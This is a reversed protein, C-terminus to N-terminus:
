VKTTPSTVLLNVIEKIKVADPPAPLLLLEDAPGHRATGFGRFRFDDGKFDDVGELFFGPVKDVTTLLFLPTCTNNSSSSLSSSKTSVELSARLAALSALAAVAAAATSAKNAYLSSSSKELLKMSSLVWRANLLIVVPLLMPTKAWKFFNNVYLV